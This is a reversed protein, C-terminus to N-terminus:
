DQVKGVLNDRRETKGWACFILYTVILIGILAVTVGVFFDVKEIM